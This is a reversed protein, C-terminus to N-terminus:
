LSLWGRLRVATSRNLRLVGEELGRVVARDVVGLERRARGSSDDRNRSTTTSSCYAPQSDGGGYSASMTSGPTGFSHYDHLGTFMPYHGHAGAVEAIEADVPHWILTSLLARTDDEEATRM